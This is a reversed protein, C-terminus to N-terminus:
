FDFAQSGSDLMDLKSNKRRARKPQIAEEASDGVVSLTDKRKRGRGGKKSPLESRTPPAAEAASSGASPAVLAATATVGQVPQVQDDVGQEHHDHRGQAAAVAMGRGPSLSHVEPGEIAEYSGGTLKHEVQNDQTVTHQDVRQGLQGMVECAGGRASKRGRRGKQSPPESRTSPAAELASSASSSAEAALQAVEAAVSANKRGRGVKLSPLESRTPAAEALSSAASSATGAAAASHTSAVEVEGSASDSTVTAPPKTMPLTSRKKDAAKEIAEAEALSGSTVTASPRPRPLTAQKSLSNAKAKSNARLATRGESEALSQIFTSTTPDYRLIIQILITM